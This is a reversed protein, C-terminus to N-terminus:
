DKIYDIVRPDTCYVGHHAGSLPYAGRRAQLDQDLTSTVPM